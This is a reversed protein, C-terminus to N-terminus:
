GPRYRYTPKHKCFLGQKLQVVTAMESLKERAQGAAELAEQMTSRADDRKDAQWQGKAIALLAQVRHAPQDQIRHALQLAVGFDKKDAHSKALKSCIIATQESSVESLLQLAEERRRQSDLSCAITDIAPERDQPRALSHAMALATSFDGAVALRGAINVAAMMRQPEPIQNVVQSAQRLLNIVEQNPDPEQAQM